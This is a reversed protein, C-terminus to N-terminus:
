GKKNSVKIVKILNFISLMRYIELTTKTIHYRNLKAM